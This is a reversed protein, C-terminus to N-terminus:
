KSYFENIYSYEVNLCHCCNILKCQESGDMSFYDAMFELANQQDEPCLSDCFLNNLKKAISNEAMIANSHTATCTVHFVRQKRARGNQDGNYTERVFLPFISRGENRQRYSKFSLEYFMKVPVLRNEVCKQVYAHLFRAKFHAITKRM